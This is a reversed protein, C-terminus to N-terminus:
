EQKKILNNVHRERVNSLGIYKIKGNEKLELFKMWTKELFDPFPWHILLVDIYESKLKKLSLDVYKTINGKSEEMQWGDIKDQIFIDNRQLNKSSLLRKISNGLM